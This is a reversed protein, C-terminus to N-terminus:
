EQVEKDKGDKHWKRTTTLMVAMFLFWGWGSIGRSALYAALIVCTISALEGALFMFANM